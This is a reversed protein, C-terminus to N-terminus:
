KRKNPLPFIFFHKNCPVAVQSFMNWHPYKIPHWQSHINCVLPFQLNGSRRIPIGQNSFSPSRQINSLSSSLRELCGQWATELTCLAQPNGSFTYLADFWRNRKPIYFARTTFASFPYVSCPFYFVQIGLKFHIICIIKLYISIKTFFMCISLCFVLQM